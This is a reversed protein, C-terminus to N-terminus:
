KPLFGATIDTEQKKQYESPSKGKYQKFNRYFSSQSTFGSKDAVNTLHMEPNSEILQAAYDIRKKNVYESFTVGMRTNIAQYIYSRNTNLRNALDSIKLNPQLFLKDKDMLNRIGEALKDEKEKTQEVNTEVVTDEGENEEKELSATEDELDILDNISYWQQYGIHGMIIILASFITAPIALLNPHGEFEYRGIINLIFSSFSAIFFLFLLYKISKLTKDEIDAYNNEVVENYRNIHRMGFYLVVPIEIAFVIRVADHAIEQWGALGNLLGDTEGYLHYITFEHMEEESMLAFIGGVSLACLFAPLLYLAQRVRSPNRVTLEEIYIFILPYVAPNAFSYLTDTIPIIDILHNYFAFHGMYLLMAASAFLFLLFHPKNWKSMVSLLLLIALTGCVFFPMSSILVSFM